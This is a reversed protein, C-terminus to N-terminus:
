YSSIHGEKDIDNTYISLTHAVANFSFITHDITSGDNNTLSYVIECAPSSATFAPIVYSLM